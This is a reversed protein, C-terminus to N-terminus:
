LMYRIEEMKTQTILVKFFLPVAFFCPDSLELVPIIDVLTTTGKNMKIGQPQENMASM